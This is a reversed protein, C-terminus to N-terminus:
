STQAVPMDLRAARTMHALASDSLLVFHSFFYCSRDNERFVLPLRIEDIVIVENTVERGVIQCPDTERFAGQLLNGELQMCPVLDYVLLIVSKDCM